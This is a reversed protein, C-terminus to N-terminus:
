RVESSESTEPHKAWLEQFDAMRAEVEDKLGLSFYRDEAELVALLTAHAGELAGDATERQAGSSFEFDNETKVFRRIISFLTPHLQMTPDFFYPLYLAALGKATGPPNAKLAMADTSLKSWSAMPRTAGCSGCTELYKPKAEAYERDIQEILEPRLIESMPFVNRAHNLHKGIHVAAYGVFADVEEPHNVLYGVTVAREYLGRLLKQAGIGYGNGCLLLIEFFDEACVGGFYYIIKQTPGTLAAPRNLIRNVTAALRDYIIEILKPHRQCFAKWEAPFGFIVETEEAM